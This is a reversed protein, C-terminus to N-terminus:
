WYTLQNNGGGTGQKLGENDNKNLAGLKKQENDLKWNCTQHLATAYNNENIFM